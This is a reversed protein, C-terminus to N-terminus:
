WEADRLFNLRERVRQMMMMSRMNAKDIEVRGSLPTMHKKYTSYYGATTCINKEVIEDLFMEVRKDPIPVDPQVDKEKLCVPLYEDANRMPTHADAYVPAYVDAYTDNDAVREGTKERVSLKERKLRMPM